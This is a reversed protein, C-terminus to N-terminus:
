KGINEGDFEYIAYISGCTINSCANSLWGLKYSIFYNQKNTDINNNILPEHFTDCIFGYIEKSNLMLLYIIMVFLEICNLKKYDEDNNIDFHTNKLYNNIKKFAEEIM